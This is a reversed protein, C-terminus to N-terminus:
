GGRKAKPPCVSRRRRWHKRLRDLRRRAAELNGAEAAKAADEILAAMDCAWGLSPDTRPM